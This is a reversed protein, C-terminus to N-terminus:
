SHQYASYNVNKISQETNGNIGLQVQAFADKLLATMKYGLRRLDRELQEFLEVSHSAYTIKGNEFYISWSFQDSLVQLYGNAQSTYLQDLLTLPSLYQFTDHSDILITIEISIIQWSQTISTSNITRSKPKGCAARDRM